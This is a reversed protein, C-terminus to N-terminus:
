DTLYGLEEAVASVIKRRKRLYSSESMYIYCTIIKNMHIQNRYKLVYLKKLDDDLKEVVKDISNITHIMRNLQKHSIIKIATNETPSSTANGKIDANVDTPKYTCIIEEKLNKIAKLTDDYDYLEREIYKFVEKKM